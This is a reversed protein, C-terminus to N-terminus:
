AKSETFRGMVRFKDERQRVLEERSLGSLQALNRRLARRLLNAAWRHNRHAGGLPERVIEDILGFGRADRASM